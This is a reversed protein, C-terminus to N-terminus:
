RGSGARNHDIMLLQATQVGEGKVLSTLRTCTYIGNDFLVPSTTREVAVIKEM